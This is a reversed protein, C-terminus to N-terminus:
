AALQDPLRREVDRVAPMAYCAAAGAIPLVGAAILLLGIGRGPGVGIVQGVSRALPGGPLLLPEFVRDALPGSALMGLPGLAWASMRLTSLVRGQLGPPVKLQWITANAANLVPQCFAFAFGAIAVLPVSARLGLLMMSAGLLIGVPLVGNIRRRPGGWTSMLLGGVLFAAGGASSAIGLDTPSAFRLVLPAQLAAVPAAALNLVSFFGLLGLLGPRAAIYSWGSGVDRLMGLPGTSTATQAPQPIRTFALTAIAVLFSALDILVLGPLGVVDLLAAASLPALLRSGSAALQVMGNARGLHQRPVLLAVSAQFSPVLLAGCAGFLLTALYVLWLQMVDAALAGLLGASVLAAVANSVLMIRRRAYRDALAGGLMTVLVQPFLFFFSILAYQTASGTHQYIWVGLGFSTLGSGILSVFQGGWVAVFRALGGSEGRERV